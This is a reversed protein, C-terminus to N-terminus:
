RACSKAPKRRGSSGDPSVAVSYICDKHGVLTRLLEHSEADWVKIEGSRAPLGGAAALWKGDPSFAVARVEGAHGSLTALVKGTATDLLRVEKYGGVALTKAGPAFALATVPSITPVAPKIDPIVPKLAAKTGATGPAPGEAGADIWAKINAIVVPPLPEGGFPMQPKLKGELMLILRSEGSKGPIVAPGHGGGKMLSDYTEMVLGGAKAANNHCGLCKNQFTPEVQDAYTPSSAQAQAANGVRDPALGPYLVVVCLLSLAATVWPVSALKVRTDM